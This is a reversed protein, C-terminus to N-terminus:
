PLVFGPRKNLNAEIIDKSFPLFLFEPVGLTQAFAL